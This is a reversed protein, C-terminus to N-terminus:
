PDLFCGARTTKGAEVLNHTRLTAHGSASIELRYEGVPLEIEGYGGADTTLSFPEPGEGKIVAQVPYHNLSDRVRFEMKGSAAFTLSAAFTAVLPVALYNRMPM